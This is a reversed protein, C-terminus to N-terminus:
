LLRLIWGDGLRKNESNLGGWVFIGNEELEGM